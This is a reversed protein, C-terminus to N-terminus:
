DWPNDDTSLTGTPGDWPNDASAVAPGVVLATATLLVVTISRIVSM